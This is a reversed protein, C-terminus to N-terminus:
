KEAKKETEPIAISAQIIRYDISNDLPFYAKVSVTSTEETNAIYHFSNSSESWAPVYFQDTKKMKDSIYPADSYLINNRSKGTVWVRVNEAKEPLNITIIRETEGFLYEDRWTILNQSQEPMMQYDYFNRIQRKPKVMFIAVFLLIILVISVAIAFFFMNQKYFLITKTDARKITRKIELFIRLIQLEFPVLILALFFNPAVSGSFLKDVQKIDAYAAMQMLYPFFPLIMLFLFTTLTWSTKFPRSFYVILYEFAFVYVLSIDVACFVFINFLSTVTLLYSYASSNNFNHHNMTLIYSVVVFAFGLIIKISLRLITGAKFLKLLLYTIGQGFLLGLTTILVAAPIFYWTKIVQKQMKIINKKNSLFSFECLILLAAFSLFILSVLTFKESLIYLKNGIQFFLGHSEWELNEKTGIIQLFDQISDLFAKTETESLGNIELGCSPVGSILFLGLNTDSKMIDLKFLVKSFTGKVNYIFDNKYFCAALSQILWTPCLIGNSGPIIFPSNDTFKTTICVSNLINENTIYSRTGTALTKEPTKQNNGYSLVIQVDTSRKASQIKFLFQSFFDKHPLFDELDFIFITNTIAEESNPQLTNDNKPFSIIINYPYENEESFILKESHYPIHEKKLYEAVQNCESLGKVTKEFCYISTSEILFFVCSFIFFLSNKKM